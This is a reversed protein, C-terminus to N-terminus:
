VEELKESAETSVKSAIKNWIPVAYWSMAFSVILWLSNSLEIAEISLFKGLIVDGVNSLLLYFFPIAVLGVVVGKIVAMVAKKKTYKDEHETVEYLVGFASVIAGAVALQWYSEDQFIVMSSFLTNSTALAAAKTITAEMKM